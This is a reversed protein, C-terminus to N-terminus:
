LWGTASHLVLGAAFSSGNCLASIGGARVIPARFVVAYFWAELVVAWAESSALAVYPDIPLLPFLFWVAPHTVLNAFLVLTLRRAVSPEEARFLYGAIPAELAFTVLFAKAWLGLLSM